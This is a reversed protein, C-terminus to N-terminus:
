GPIPVNTRPPHRPELPVVVVPTLSHNVIRHATGGLIAGRLGSHHTGGIVILDVNRQEALHLLDAAPDGHVLDADYEVSADRLPQTWPGYLAARARRVIEGTDLQLASLEIEWSRAIVHAVLVRAGIASALDAAWHAARGAGETGDIGLLIKRPPM